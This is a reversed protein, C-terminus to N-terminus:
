NAILTGKAVDEHHEGVFAYSGPKLPGVLVTITKGGSVVKEVHLDHSEFEEATSDQNDVILKVRQGAPVTLEAPTFLHDKLTLKFSPEEARAPVVVLMGAAALGIMTVIRSM